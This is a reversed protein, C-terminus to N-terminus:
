LSIDNIKKLKKNYNILKLKIKENINSFLKLLFYESEISKWFYKHNLNEQNEKCEKTEVLDFKTKLENIKRNDDTKDEIKKVMIKIERGNRDSSGAQEKFTLDFNVKKGEYLFLLNDMNKDIKTAYKQCIDRMKEENSCQMILDAGELTFVVTAESM